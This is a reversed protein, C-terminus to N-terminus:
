NHEEQQEDNDNGIVNASREIARSLATISDEGDNNSLTSIGKHIKELTTALEYIFKPTLEVQEPEGKVMVELHNRNAMQEIKCLLKKWIRLERQEFEENMKNEKDM